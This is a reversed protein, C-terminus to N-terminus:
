AIGVDRYQAATRRIEPTLEDERARRVLEWKRHIPCRQFRRSGLRVAKFSVMTVWVTEYYGGGSCRVVTRSGAM